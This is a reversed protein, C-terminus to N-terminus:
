GDPTAHNEIALLNNIRTQLAVTKAHAEGNIQTIKNELDTIASQITQDLPPFKTEDVYIESLRTYGYDSMDNDPSTTTLESGSWGNRLVSEVNHKSLWLAVRM